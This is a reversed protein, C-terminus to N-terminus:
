LKVTRTKGDNCTVTFGGKGNPTVASDSRIADKGSKAYVPEGGEYPYIRAEQLTRIVWYKGKETKLLEPLAVVQGPVEVGKWFARSDGKMGTFGISGDEYIFGLTRGEPLEYIAPGLLVPKPLAVPFGSVFRGLRDLLWLRSGAAFLFQIKGNAYHDVEEVRGCIPDHFEISWLAKGNEDSLTLYNNTQQSLTNIKNTACNKVKFPGKPVDIGAGTIVIEAEELPTDILPREVRLTVGSPTSALVADARSAGVLVDALANKFAKGFIDDPRCSAGAFFMVFGSAKSPIIDPSAQSLTAKLSGGRSLYDKVAEESGSIIWGDRYTFFPDSSLAYDDGFLAYAFGAFEYPHAAPTYNKEDVGELGKFIYSCSRQAVRVLGAELLEEGRYWQIRAVEKVDLSKAWDLPKVGSADALKKRQARVGSLKTTADLYRDYTEIYDEVSAVPVAMAFETVSLAAEAFRCDSAALGGFAKVYSNQGLSNAMSFAAKRENHETESFATWSAYRKVKDAHASVKKTFFSPFLKGAYSNAFFAAVSGTTQSACSCFSENELISMGDDIHTQSSAVLVESTSSIIYSKDGLRHFAASMGADKASELVSLVFNTSDHANKGADLIVIPVTSGCNHLSVAMPLRGVLPEIGSLYRYVPSKKNEYVFARWFSTSDLLHEVGSEASEFVALAMADSPVAAIVPYKDMVKVVKHGRTEEGRFLSFSGILIGALLVTALTIYLILTKKNM